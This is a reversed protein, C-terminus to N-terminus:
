AGPRLRFGVGDLGVPVSVLGVEEAPAGPDVAVPPGVPAANGGLQAAADALSAARKLALLGLAAARALEPHDPAM